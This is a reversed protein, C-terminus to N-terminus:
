RHHPPMHQTHTYTTNRALFYTSESSWSSICSENLCDDVLKLVEVKFKGEQDYNMNSIAPLLSHLFETNANLVNRFATRSKIYNFEKDVEDGNELKKQKSQDREKIM